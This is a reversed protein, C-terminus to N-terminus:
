AVDLSRAPRLNGVCRGDEVILEKENDSQVQGIQIYVCGEPCYGPLQRGSFKRGGLDACIDEGLRKVWDIWWQSMDRSREVACGTNTHLFNATVHATFVFGYKM